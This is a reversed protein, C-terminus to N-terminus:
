AAITPERSRFLLILTAGIILAGSLVAILGIPESFLFAAFIIAYVPELAVFGGCVAVPLRKLSFFYLQHMLATAFVGLVAIIAWDNGHPQRAEFPLAILLFLVVTVNQYLSLAVANLKQGLQRSVVSFAAFLVASSLGAVAGQQAMAVAPLGRGVLVLMAFVITLGSAVEIVDPPRRRSISDFLITFLPFTAFTLTAVAVGSDQVSKFFTVWHLALLIGAGVIKAIDGSEARFSARRILAITMLTTAAFAARGAVIWVPSVDLKGFLASSGFIVAAINVATLGAWTERTVRSPLEAEL